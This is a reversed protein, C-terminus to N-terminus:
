NEIEAVSVVQFGETSQLLESELTEYSMQRTYAIRVSIVVASLDEVRQFSTGMVKVGHKEIRRITDMLCGPEWPRRVTLLRFLRRPLKKELRNLAWLVGLIVASAVASMTYLGLGSALGVGAVCWLAAATTLGRITFGDKVIAGGGLFGIGTMVGYAIRTPDVQVVANEPRPWRLSTVEASVIMVLASGICVLMHTRWGAQRGRVEREAGVLGGALAALLLRLTLSIARGLGINMAWQDILEDLGTM